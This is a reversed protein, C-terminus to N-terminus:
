RDKEGSSNDADETEANDEMHCVDSDGQLSLHNYHSLNTLKRLISVLKTQNSNNLYIRKELIQHITGVNKNKRCPKEFQIGCFM